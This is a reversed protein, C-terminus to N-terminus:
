AMAKPDDVYPYFFFRFSLYVLDFGTNSNSIEIKKLPNVLRYDSKKFRSNHFFCRSMLTIWWNICAKYLIRIYSKYLIRLVQIQRM